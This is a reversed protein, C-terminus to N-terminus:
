RTKKPCRSQEGEKSKNDSEEAGKKVTKAKDQEVKVFVDSDDNETDSADEPERLGFLLWGTKTAKQKRHAAVKTM